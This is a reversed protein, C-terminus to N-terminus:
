ARIMIRSINTRYKYEYRIQIQVDVPISAASKYGCRIGEKENKFTPSIYTNVTGSKSIEKQLWFKQSSNHVRPKLMWRFALYDEYNNLKITIEIRAFFATVYAAYLRVSM